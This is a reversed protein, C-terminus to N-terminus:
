STSFQLISIKWHFKILFNHAIYFITVQVYASADSTLGLFTLINKRVNQKRSLFEWSVAIRFINMGNLNAHPILGKPALGVFHDFVSLCLSPAYAFGLEKRTSVVLYWLVSNIMCFFIQGFDFVSVLVFNISTRRTNKTSFKFLNCCPLHFTIEM